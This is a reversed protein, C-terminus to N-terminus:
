LWDPHGPPPEASEVRAVAARPDGHVWAIHDERDDASDFRLACQPCLWSVKMPARGKRRPKAPGELGPIPVPKRTKSRPRNTATPKVPEPVVLGARRAADKVFWGFIRRSSANVGHDIEPHFQVGLVRGDRSEIAEIMGTRERGGVRFGDGHRTIVQHHLSPFPSAQGGIIRRFRSAPEAFVLHDMGRHGPVHQKLRGGNHVAIMQAGRCIGLVTIGSDAAYDLAIMETLDRTESVGYVKAHPKEGYLRPDLDGGGSLVLGDWEVTLADEVKEVDRPNITTVDGGHRVVCRSVSGYGQELVLIRPARKIKKATM